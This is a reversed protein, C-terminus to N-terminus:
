AAVPRGTPGPRSAPPPTGARERLLALGPAGPAIEALLEALEGLHGHDHAAMM